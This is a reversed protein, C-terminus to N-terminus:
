LLSLRVLFALIISLEQRGCNSPLAVFNARFSGHIGVIVVIRAKVLALEATLVDDLLYTLM